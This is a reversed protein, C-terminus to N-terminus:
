RKGCLWVRRDDNPRYDVKKDATRLIHEVGNKGSRFLGNATFEPELFDTDPLITGIGPAIISKKM